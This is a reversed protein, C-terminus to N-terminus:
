VQVPRTMTFVRKFEPWIIKVYQEATANEIVAVLSPLVLPLVEAFDLQEILVPFM